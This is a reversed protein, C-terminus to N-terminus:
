CKRDGSERENSDTGNNSTVWVRTPVYRRGHAAASLGYHRALRDLGLQLVVKASRTPWGRNHEVDALGKLFCCVDLLLGSFEPGVADLAQNVRQRAAIVADAFNARETTRNAGRTAGASWNSTTCPMLQARTFEARLREGAQMQVPEILARGDRGKRRALWALPSEADNVIVMGETVALTRQAVDLHQARFPDVIGKSEQSARAVHAFGAPTVALTGDKLQLLLDAAALAAIDKQRRRGSSQPLDRPANHGTLEALLNEASKKLRTGARMM